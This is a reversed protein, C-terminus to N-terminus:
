PRASRAQALLGEAQEAYIQEGLRNLIALAQELSKGARTPQGQQLLVWGAAYRAKAEAYPYEMERALRLAEDLAQTAEQWRERRAALRAWTLLADLLVPRLRQTTADPIIQDLLQQAQDTEGRELHAWALTILLHAAGSEQRDLGDLLPRLREYARQPQGSVLEREALDSQAWRLAEQEQRREALALAEEFYPAAADWQGQAMLLAGLNFLAYTAGWPLGVQRMLATAQEFEQRAQTWEGRQFANYGHTNLAFALLTPDGLQEALTLAQEAYGRAIHLEGRAEYVLNLNLLVYYLSRANGVRKVLPLAAELQPIAEEQRNLLILSHGWQWLARGLLEEDGAERTLAVAQQAVPAADAYRGSNQLLYTLTLYLNSRGRASVAREAPTDLWSKLLAIGEEPTGRAAHLQGIKATVQAQGEQDSMKRYDALVGELITLAESYRSQSALARALQERAQNAGDSQGLQLSVETLEQYFRGAEAYAYVGLAHVAARELYLAAKDLAGARRYHYALREVPPEGPQQELAEAMQQHLVARRAGSLSAGVVERILEHAFAYSEGGQEVLLRAQCAQELATLMERRSWELPAALALLLRRDVERDTVAAAGLLYQAAEPLAAVRLRISEAVSWPVTEEADAAQGGRLEQACSVLFYPVGGARKLVRQVTADRRTGTPEDLLEDLLAAADAQPLPGLERRGALGERTLDALLVALPDPLNVETQRYAAVVLLRREQAPRLLHALLDLADAGAWQFDDLLLLTGASGAVNALFRGVADFMLRREQEPPLNWSPAPLDAQGALEPLLRVLWGCGALAQRQEDPQQRALTRELLTVFPAYPEQASRRHCGGPLVHLGAARGIRAAEQLLRTKGIGPEGALLFLPATSRSTRASPSLAPVPNGCAGAATPAAQRTLHQELAAVEQARGVLALLSEEASPSESPGALHVPAGSEDSRRAALHFAEREQADLRLADALVNVTVPLPRREGRELKRLYIASYGAQEALAEQTLEAARRYQRLLRGFSLAPSQADM